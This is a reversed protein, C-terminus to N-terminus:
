ELLKRVSIFQGENNVGELIVRIKKSIDNNYFSIRIKQMTGDTIINPRWYLTRRTDTKNHATQPVAYDPEYFEKVATYGAIKVNDIGKVNATADVGKKTYVSIAGGGGNVASGIFPPRFVKIYAVDSMPISSLFQADIPIENLFFGVSSGRWVASPSQTLGGTIQLGAVRSQLYNFVNFSSLAQPDNIMDFSIADSGRFLGNTYNEDMEEIRTKIRAKVVVEELTTQTQLVRLREQAFAAERLIRIKATDTYFIRPPFIFKEFATDTLSSRFSVKGRGPLVSLKNLQYFLTATDYFVVNPEHFTGNAAVPTFLLQTSSDKGKVILNITGSKALRNPNVGDIKGMISLYATDPPYQLKWSEANLVKKWSIRRWGNTLMVLDLYYKASDGAVSFYYAPNHVYGKIDSSLLLSSVINEASDDGVDDNTVALSMNVPVSDPLQIEYSNKARKDLGITDFRMDVASRYEENDIFFLRESVPVNDPTLISLTAIGSPLNYVPIRTTLKDQKELNIIGKMVTQQNITLLMTLRRYSVPFNASREVELYRNIGTGTVQLSIGELQAQPLITKQQSGDPATWSATLKEDLKPTVTFKGMGDHLSQFRTIEEGKDNTILGNVSFPMGNKDTAKFAVAGKLNAILNGGEPLFQISFSNLPKAIGAPQLDSQLVTIKKRFLFSSDFNLMWQTYGTVYLFQGKYNKPIEFSGFASSLAVPSVQHSLLKGNEDYWDTYFNRNLKSPEPGSMLYAKYGILAGPTYANNDFHIYVKEQPFVTNYKELQQDISQADISIVSVLLLLFLLPITKKM